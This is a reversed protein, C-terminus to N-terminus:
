DASPESEEDAAAVCEVFRVFARYGPACLVSFGIVASAGNRTIWKPKLILEFSEQGDGEGGSPHPYVTASYEGEFDIDEVDTFEIRCGTKSVELVCGPFQSIGKAVVKIFVAFRQEKRHEVAVTHEM